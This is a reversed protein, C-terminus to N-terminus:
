ATRSIRLAAHLMGVVQSRGEALQKEAAVRRARELDREESVTLLTRCARDYDAKLRDIEALFRAADTM